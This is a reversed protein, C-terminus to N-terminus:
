AVAIALSFGETQLNGLKVYLFVEEETKKHGLWNIVAKRNSHPRFGM